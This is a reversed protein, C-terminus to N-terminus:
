FFDGSLMWTGDFTDGGGKKMSLIQCVVLTVPLGGVLEKHVSLLVPRFAESDSQSEM